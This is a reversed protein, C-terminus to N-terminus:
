SADTGRNLEHSTTVREAILSLTPTRSVGSIVDQLSIDTSPPAIAPSCICGATSCLTKRKVKRVADIVKLYKKQLIKMVNMTRWGLYDLSFKTAELLRFCYRAEDESRAFLICWSILLPVFAEVVAVVVRTSATTRDFFLTPLAALFTVAAWV